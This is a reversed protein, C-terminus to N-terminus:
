EWKFVPNRCTSNCAFKARFLALMHNILNLRITSINGFKSDDQRDRVQQEYVRKEWNGYLIRENTYIKKNMNM